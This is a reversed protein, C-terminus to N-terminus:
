DSVEGTYLTICVLTAGNHPFNNMQLGALATVLNSWLDTVYFGDAYVCMHMNYTYIVSLSLGRQEATREEKRLTTIWTRSQIQTRTHSHFSAHSVCVCVCAFWYGLKPFGSFVSCITSHVKLSFIPSFRTAHRMMRTEHLYFCMYPGRQETCWRYIGTHTHFNGGLIRWCM